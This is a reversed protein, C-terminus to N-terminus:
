TNKRRWALRCCNCKYSPKASVSVNFADVADLPWSESSSQWGHVLFITESNPRFESDRIENLNEYSILDYKKTSKTFLRFETGITEPSDPLRAPRSGTISWPFEDTFCGLNNYCKQEAFAASLLTFLLKMKEKLIKDFSIRIGM